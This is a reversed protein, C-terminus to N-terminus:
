DSFILRRLILVFPIFLTFGVSSLAIGAKPTCMLWAEEHNTICLVGAIGMVLPNLFILLSMVLVIKRLRLMPTANHPDIGLCPNVAAVIYCLFLLGGVVMIINRNDELNEVRRRSDEISEPMTGIILEMRHNSWYPGEVESNNWRQREDFWHSNWGTAYHSSPHATRYRLATTNKRPITDEGYVAIDIRITDNGIYGCPTVSPDIFERADMYSPVRFETYYQVYPLEGVYYHTRNALSTSGDPLEVSWNVLPWPLLVTFPLTGLEHSVCPFLSRNTLNITPDYLIVQAEKHRSGMLALMPGFFVAISTLGIVLIIPRHMNPLVAHKRSINSLFSETFAIAVWGAALCFFVFMLISFGVSAGDSSSFQEGMAWDTFFLGILAAAVVVSFLVASALSCRNWLLLREEVAVKEETFADFHDALTLTPKEWPQLKKMIPMSKVPGSSVPTVTSLRYRSHSYVPGTPRLDSLRPVHIFHSWHPLYNAFYRWSRCTHSVALLTPLHMPLFLLINSLIDHYFPPQGDPVNGRYPGDDVYSNYFSKRRPEWNSEYHALLSQLFADLEPGSMKMVRSKVLARKRLSAPPEVFVVHGKGDHAQPLKGSDLRFPFAVAIEKWFREQRYPDRSGCWHRLVDPIDLTNDDQSQQGEGDVVVFPETSTDFVISTTDNREGIEEGYPESNSRADRNLRIPLPTKKRFVRRLDETMKIRRLLQRQLVTIDIRPEKVGEIPTLWGDSQDEDLPGSRGDNGEWSLAEGLEHLEMEVDGM